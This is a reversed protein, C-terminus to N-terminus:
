IHNSLFVSPEFHGILANKLHQSKLLDLVRQSIVLRLDDALGFDDKGPKGSVKLWLFDPLKRNPHVRRFLESKEVEVECFAVGTPHLDKLKQALDKTAIFCPFSELLSDGLWGDFKYHLKSVKPPRVTCDMVTHEGLGGAVEPEVIFHNM